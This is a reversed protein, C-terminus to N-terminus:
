GEDSLALGGFANPECSEPESKPDRFSRWLDPHCDIWNFRADYWAKRAEAGTMLRFCDPAILLEEPVEGDSLWLLLNNSCQTVGAWIAEADRAGILDDTEMAIVSDRFSFRPGAQQMKIHHTHRMNGKYLYEEMRILVGEFQILPERDIEEIPSVSIGAFCRDFLSDRIKGSYLKDNEVCDDRTDSVWVESIVFDPSDDDIRIADWARDIRQGTLTPRASNEVRVAASNCYTWVWDSDMPAKGFFRGGQIRVDDAGIVALPYRNVQGEGVDCGQAETPNDNRSFLVQFDAFSLDVTAGAGLDRLRVEGTGQDGTFTVTEALLPQALSVAICGGMAYKKLSM